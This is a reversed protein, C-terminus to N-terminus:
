RGEDNRTVKEISAQRALVQHAENIISSFEADDIPQYRGGVASVIRRLEPAASHAEGLAIVNVEAGTQKAKQILLEISETVRPNALVLFIQDARWDASAGLAAALDTEGSSMNGVLLSEAGAISSQTVGSPQLVLPRSETALAVAFSSETDIRKAVEPTLFAVGDTYAAMSLDNDMVFGVTRGAVPIHFYEGLIADFSSVAPRSDDVVLLSEM